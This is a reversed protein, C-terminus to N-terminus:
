LNVKRNRLSVQLSISQDSSHAGRAALNVQMGKITHEDSIPLTLPSGADNLYVFTTVGSAQYFNSIITYTQKKNTILTGNPPNATLPTVDALLQKNGATKYYHILSVYADNPSFYAYCTVDNASESIIDTLGRLVDGVRQSQYSLDTFDSGDKQLSLYQSLSTNVFSYFTLSIIGILTMIIMLEVLTFGRSFPKHVSLRKHHLM